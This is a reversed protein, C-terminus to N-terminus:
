NISLLSKESSKTEKLERMKSKSTTNSESKNPSGLKKVTKKKYIGNDSRM